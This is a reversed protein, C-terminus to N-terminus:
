SFISKLLYFPFKLCFLVSIFSKLKMKRQPFKIIIEDGYTITTRIIVFSAWEWSKWRSTAEM